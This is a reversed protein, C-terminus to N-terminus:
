YAIPYANRAFDMVQLNVPNRIKPDKSANEKGQLNLAEM